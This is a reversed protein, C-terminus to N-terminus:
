QTHHNKFAEEVRFMAAHKEHIPTAVKQKFAEEVKSPQKVYQQKPTAVKQKFAEEVEFPIFLRYISPTAVKQKFAEEIMFKLIDQIDKYKMLYKSELVSWFDNYRVWLRDKKNNQELVYRGDEKMYFISDPYEDMKFPILNSLWSHIFDIIEKEISELPQNLIKSIKYKRILNMINNLKNIKEKKSTYNKM